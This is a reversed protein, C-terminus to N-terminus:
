KKPFLPEGKNIKDFSIEINPDLLDKTKLDFIGMQQRMRSSTEPMFPYLFGAIIRIWYFSKSLFEALKQPDEKALVWPKNFEIDTNAAKVHLWIRELINYFDLEKYCNDIFDLSGKFSKDELEDDIYNKQYEVGYKQIMSLVRSLLNGLDNALETEYTKKFGEYSFSADKGFMSNRFLYFRFADVGFEEVLDLPDVVNGLSKSMKEEEMMWWGHAFIQEPLEWDLAMLMTSWYVSHTTLIDKGILHCTAPWWKEDSNIYKTASYYNILADFWVYTVYESDFPLEIGWSLRSKPRSICLDDLKNNKLFGLVENKRMEPQIFEWDKKNEIYDILKQQYKSMLFFYNEEEIHEVPRGCDPCNGDKLDKETWFREDPVCYWGSYKRKEIEGKDKLQTLIEQVVKKHGEDTTRIFADNKINLKKWLDKFNGVMADAHDKPSMGKEKAAQEVKQGYEDTGTLFFVKEGKIDRYYRSLIDCAVTTYAHGIHPRANIYYIPTTFYYKEKKVQDM